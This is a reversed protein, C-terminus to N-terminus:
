FKLKDKSSKNIKKHNVDLINKKVDNKTPPFSDIGPLGSASSIENQIKNLYKKVTSMEKLGLLL